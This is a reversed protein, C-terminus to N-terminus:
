KYYQPYTKSLRDYNLDFLYLVGIMSLGTIIDLNLKFIHDFVIVFIINYFPVFWRWYVSLLVEKVKTNM